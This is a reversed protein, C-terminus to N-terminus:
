NRPRLVDLRRGDRDRDLIAGERVRGGVRTRAPGRFEADGEIFETEREIYTRGEVPASPPGGASATLRAQLPRVVQIDVVDGPQRLTVLEILDEPSGVREGDLEVIIDGRRVGAREAPSGPAVRVVMAGRDYNRDLVVGLTARPGGPDDYEVRQARYGRPFLEAYRVFITQPRGERLVRLAIRSGPQTVQIWRWFDRQSSIRRDNVSVLVDGRQIGATALASQEEINNIVLRNDRDTFSLGLDLEADARGELRGETEAEGELEADTRTRADTDRGRQDEAAPRDPQDEPAPVDAPEETDAPPEVGEVPEERDRPPRPRDPPPSPEEEGAQPDPEDQDAEEEAEQDAQEGELDADEDADAAAPSPQPDDAEESAQQALAASAAVAFAVVWAAMCKTWLDSM